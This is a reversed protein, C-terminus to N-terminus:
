TPGSGAVCVLAVTEGPGPVVNDWWNANASCEDNNGRRFRVPYLGPTTPMMLNVSGMGSTPQDDCTNLNDGVPNGNYICGQKGGPVLGIEIQDRCGPCVCDMIEYHARFTARQGPTAVYLAGPGIQVLGTLAVESVTVYETANTTPHSNTWMASAPPSAPTAGCPWDDCADPVGDGDEDDRDDGAPCRDDSTCIGDGDPDDPNDFPCPDCMDVVGDGDRDPGVCEIPEGVDSPSTTQRGDGPPENASISFSCGTLVVLWAIRECM